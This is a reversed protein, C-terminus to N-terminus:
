FYLKVALQIIRASRVANEAGFGYRGGAGGLATPLNTIVGASNFNATANIGSWQTHNFSNYTELRLQFYRGEGRWFPINKFLSLDFDNVGPGRYQHYYSDAGSSGLLAPMKVVSTNIWGYMTRDGPSFNANGTMVPRPAITESGTFERNPQAGSTGNYTFSLPNPAGSVLSTFGSFEWGNLVTHGIRNDMFGPRAPKPFNYIYSLVLNQTRDFNAPGYFANRTMQNPINTGNYSDSMDMAKSWTYAVTYELGKTMRRNISVQLAQYNASAGWAIVNLTGLGVYPRYFNLPLTTDGNFKPTVTPDQNQPLWASGLLPDNYTRQYPLHSSSSGVYALEISTSFPLKRQITFNWNYTVPIKGDETEGNVNSPFFNSGAAGLGTLNGYYVTPILVMPPNSSMGFVINGVVRDYFVGGGVRIVTNGGGPNWAIGLRPGFQVGRQNMLGRPYGNVGAQAVGNFLSGSNPVVAGILVAAAQAGTLPNVAVKQGASNLMPRYLTVTQSTSFLAPNFSSIGNNQEYDPQVWAMRLGYDLTLNKSIKWNDQAYWEINQHKYYLSPYVSAQSFSQYNGLLANSYAYGTDGPNQSDQGFSLNGSVICYCSQQKLTSSRFFGFKLTHAGWMKAVNDTIDHTPDQNYYPQGQFTTSPANTVGGYSFNPIMHLKDANPFLTTFGLGLKSTTYTDDLPTSGIENWARGVIFENTLTPTIITTLSAMHTSGNQPASFGKGMGLTNNSAQDGYLATIPRPAIIARLYLRWKDTINYDGRVITQRPSDQNPFQSYYNYTTQNAVNPLPYFNLIKQGDANFRAAPIVNGPFPTGGANPDKITPRTGNSGLITQSFDGTRELVTPVQLDREAGIVLQRMFDNAVFFFLKNRFYHMKPLIVPGGITFGVNNYRYRPRQVGNVNNTFSNANLDEHRHFLYGVGHFQSGGSKTVINVSGGATRGFQAQQSNTLITIEAIADTNLPVLNTGNNGSDLTTVGDMIVNNQDTRRGNTNATDGNFGAVTKYLGTYNRGNLALDVVQTGTVTGSRESSLTQLVVASAEVNVTETVSGVALAIDPLAMRDTAFLQIDKQEVKSFGAAEVVVTYTSPQVPTFAFTGESNTSGERSTGQQQDTLTVKAGVVVAGQSDVVRGQISASTQQARLGCACWLLLLCLVGRLRM